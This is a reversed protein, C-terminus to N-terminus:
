DTARNKGTHFLYHKKVCYYRRCCNCYRLAFRLPAFLGLMTEKLWVTMVGGRRMRDKALLEAM